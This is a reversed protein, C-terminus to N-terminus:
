LRWARWAFRLDIDGLAVGAVCLAAAGGAVLPAWARWWIWGLILAHTKCNKWEVQRFCQAQWSFNSALDYSTSCRDRLIMTGFSFYVSSRISWFAVRRLFDAAEGGLMESPCTEQVAGAVRFADKCIRQLHGVGAM